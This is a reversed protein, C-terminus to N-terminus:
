RRLLTRRLEATDVRFTEDAHPSAGYGTAGETEEVLLCVGGTAPRTRRPGEAPARSNGRPHHHPRRARSILKGTLQHQRSFASARGALAIHRHLHGSGSPLGTARRARRSRMLVVVGVAAIDAPALLALLNMTVSEGYPVMRLRWVLLHLRHAWQRPRRRNLSGSCKVALAYSTTATGIQPKSNLGEAPMYGPLFRGRASSSAAVLCRHQCEDLLRRSYGRCCPSFARMEQWWM